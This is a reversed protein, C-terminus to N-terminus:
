IDINFRIIGYSNLATISLSIVNILSLGVISGVLMPRLGSASKYFAGTLAGSLSNRVSRGYDQIEEEFVLDVLKGTVCFMLSAAASANGFRTGTKMITNVSHYAKLQRYKGVARNANSVGVVLGIVASTIYSIGVTFTLKEGWRKGYGEIYMNDRQQQVPKLTFKEENYM